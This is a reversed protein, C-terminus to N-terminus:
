FLPHGASIASAASYFSWGLAILVLGGVLRAYHSFANQYGGSGGGSTTIFRQLWSRAYLTAIALLSVSLGTGIGMMLTAIVGYSYVGVLHAYILVVIAGSCPRFGMSLIVALTQLTSENQEPVHTHSCGCGSSHEHTHSHASHDHHHDHDHEYAQSHAHQQHSHYTKQGSSRHLKLMRRIAGVVLMVGLMIVLIFSVLAMGNGYNHVEALKFQLIRALGSVLTIAIVSQLIAAAFSILIGKRFSEKNTGLYTVIVAKGHGPGVAHFVGYCFSLAVLAGGYEIVDESVASIHSALMGHLSKQYEITTAVFTNWETYITFGLGIVLVLVVLKLLITLYSTQFPTTLRNM